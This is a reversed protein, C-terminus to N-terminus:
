KKGVFIENMRQESPMGMKAGGAMVVDHFRLPFRYFRKGNVSYATEVTNTVSFSAGDKFSVRFNGELRVMSFHYGIVTIEAFDGKAEVVSDLKKLNKIVFKDRVFDIERKVINRLKADLKDDPVQYVDQLLLMADMHKGNAHYARRILHDHMTSHEAAFARFHRVKAHYAVLTDDFMQQYASDTVQFLAKQVLATADLGARPALYKAQVDEAPKAERKKALPKLALMLEAIPMTEILFQREAENTTKKLRGAMQHIYFDENIDAADLADSIRRSIFNKLDQYVSNPIIGAALADSAMQVRNRFIEVQKARGQEARLTFEPGRRDVVRRKILLDALYNTATEITPM